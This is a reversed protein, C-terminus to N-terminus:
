SGKMTTTINYLNDLHLAKGIDSAKFYYISRNNINEQLISIDCNEFARVICNNDHTKLEETM